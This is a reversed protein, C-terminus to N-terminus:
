ETAEETSMATLALVAAAFLYLAVAAVWVARVVHRWAEAELLRLAFATTVVGVLISQARGQPLDRMLGAARLLRIIWTNAYIFIIWFLWVLIALPLLLLLRQWASASTLCVEFAFAYVVLHVLGGVANAELGNKETRGTDGGVWSWVLRPLAFYFRPLRHADANQM